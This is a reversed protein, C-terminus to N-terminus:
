NVNKPKLNSNIPTRHPIKRKKGHLIKSIWASVPLDVPMKKKIKKWTQQGINPTQTATTQKVVNKLVLNSLCM